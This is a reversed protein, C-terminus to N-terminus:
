ARDAGAAGSPKSAPRLSFAQALQELRRQLAAADGEGAPGHTLQLTIGELQPCCPVVQHLLGLAQAAGAPEDAGSDLQIERVLALDLAALCAPLAPGPPGLRLLLGCGTRAALRNLAAAHAAPTDTPEVQLLLPLGLIDAARCVHAALRDLAGAPAGPPLALRQACRSAHYHAATRAVQALHQEDLPRLGAIPPGADHCALPYQEALADLMARAGPRDLYRPTAGPGQDTWLTGPSLALYDLAAPHTALFGALAPDVVAGVGRAPTAASM